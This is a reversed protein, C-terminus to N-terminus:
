PTAGLVQRANDLMAPLVAEHEQYEPRQVALEEDYNALFREYFDRSAESNGLAQEAQGATYLGFLHTPVQTIMQEATNRAGVPDNNVLHLLAMHYFADLDKNPVMEYAQVAMPAFQRASVSDGESVSLMVREFLRYAAQEPTMSSLDIASPDGVAGAPAFPANSAAPPPPASDGGLRPVIYVLAAILVLAAGGAAALTGGRSSKAPEPSAAAAPGARAPQKGTGGAKGVPTGCMNCFRGGAPIENGCERCEVPESLSTGCESCFRGSAPKGCAPCTNAM